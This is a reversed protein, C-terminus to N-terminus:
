CVQASRMKNVLDANLFYKRWFLSRPQEDVM